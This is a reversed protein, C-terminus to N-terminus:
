EYQTENEIEADKIHSSSFWLIHQPYLFYMCFLWLIAWICMWIISLWSDSMTSFTDAFMNPLLLQFLQIRLIHSMAFLSLSSMGIAVLMYLSTYHEQSQIDQKLMPADCIYSIQLWSWATSLLLVLRDSSSVFRDTTHSIDIHEKALTVRNKGRHCLPSLIYRQIYAFIRSRFGETLWLVVSMVLSYYLRIAYQEADQEYGFILSLVILCLFVIGWAAVRQSSSRDSVLQTIKAKASTLKQKM